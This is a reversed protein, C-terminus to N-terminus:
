RGESFIERRLILDGDEPEFGRERLMTQLSGSRSLDFVAEVLASSEGGRVEDPDAREGLLLGLSDVLISKGAGTEGTIVSLGPSFELAIERIISLNRIRLYKIM